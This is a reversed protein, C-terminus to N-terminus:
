LLGAVPKTSAPDLAAVPIASWGYHLHMTGVTVDVDIGFFVPRITV